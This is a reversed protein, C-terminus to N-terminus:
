TTSYSGRTVSTGYITPTVQPETSATIPPEPLESSTGSEIQCTRRSWIPMAKPPLPPKRM